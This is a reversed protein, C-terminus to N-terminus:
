AAHLLDVIQDIAADARHYARELKSNFSCGAGPRKVFQSHALPGCLRRHFLLFLLAVRIGKESFAYSYRGGMREILGHARMKRLDYRLQNFAYHDAPIRFRQLLAQHIQRANWGRIQSGAYLLTEMLRIMRTDHIKIGAIRTSGLHIPHALRQLLSFDAHVNLWEAQFGAFRDTITQFHQRVADLNELGKKLGFDKLNNSCLENRLFVSFKEYQKLFANKFYARFIHHGHDIRELTTYLKGRLRKTLRQGFVESIKQATMRWLGIECSREFIKRIPFNRKFIFNRCYEVQALAYFRSLNMARRQRRSFKPGLVLTWYELRNRIIAPSLRDAADQLALPDAVALFANDNKRFSVNLQKLQREIFSHGNIWYTTQFPFFSAVRMVMPGLVEDRIYFYYHTFRSRQHALIRYNPDQTAYKPNSSRFTNGQEMSRFIFYVGFARKREMRRLWPLVADEKRVGKEAWPFPIGHNRAFAEVWSQYETTRQRLVDKTITPISLVERFFYVAQEPRSLGSLYGNIVVRDFCHYVLVLLSGFLRSFSEM